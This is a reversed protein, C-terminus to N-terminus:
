VFGWNSSVERIVSLWESPDDYDADYVVNGGLVTMRCKLNLLEEPSCDLPNERFVAFDALKGIEVSGLENIQGIIAAGDITLMEVVRAADPPHEAYIEQNAFSGTTSPAEFVENDTLIDSRQVRSLRLSHAVVFRNKKYGAFRTKQIAEIIKLLDTKEIADIHFDFGKDAGKIVAEDLFDYTVNVGDLIIKITRCNIYEHIEACSDSKQAMKKVVYEPSVDKVILLSGYFRQKLLDAQLMEVLIEQFIGHLYDPAGCDFVSTFGKECYGAAVDIVASQLADFDVPSLTQFVYPLTIIPLEDMERAAATKVKEIAVSNFWGQFGSVDLMAVPKDSCVEDITEWLEKETRGVTLASNFGYAFYAEQNPNDRIYDALTTLVQTSTMNPDLLLCVKQFAQLVPHGGADVFGPLLTGGELDIIETDPGILEDIMESDGVAIIRGGSCAVADAWPEDSDLTYVSGGTFVIDAYDAKKFLGFIM